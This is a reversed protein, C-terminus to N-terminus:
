HKLRICSFFIYAFADWRKPIKQMQQIVMYDCFTAGEVFRLPFGM